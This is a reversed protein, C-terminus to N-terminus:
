SVECMPTLCGLMAPTVCLTAVSFTAPQIQTKAAARSLFYVVLSVTLTLSVIVLWDYYFRRLDDEAVNGWDFDNEEGCYSLDTFMTFWDMISHERNNILMTTAITLCIKWINGYLSLKVKCARMSQLFTLTKPNPKIKYLKYFEVQMDSASSTWKKPVYNEWFGASVLFMAVPAQWNYPEQPKERSYMAPSLLGASLQSAVCLLNILIIFPARISCEPLELLLLVAPILALGNMAATAQLVNDFEPIVRFVLLCIGIAYLTDIIM